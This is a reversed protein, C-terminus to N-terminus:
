VFPEARSRARKVSVKELGANISGKTHPLNPRRGEPARDSPVLVFGLAPAGPKEGDGGEPATLSSMGSIRDALAPGGRRRPPSRSRPCSRLRSWSRATLGSGDPEAFAGGLRDTGGRGSPWVLTVVYSGDPAGEPGDGTRLKFRGERDTTSHPRPAGADQFRNLPHLRVEVGEAPKGGVLVRGAVPHLGTGATPSDTGVRASRGPRSDWSCPYSDIVDTRSEHLCRPRECRRRDSGGRVPPPPSDQPRAVSRWSSGLYSM